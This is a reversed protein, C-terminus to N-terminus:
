LITLAGNRVAPFLFVKAMQRRRAFGARKKAIGDLMRGNAVEQYAGRGIFAQGIPSVFLIMPTSDESEMHVGNSAHTAGPRADRFLHRAPRHYATSTSRTRLQAKTARRSPRMRHADLLADLASFPDQRATAPAFEAFTSNRM